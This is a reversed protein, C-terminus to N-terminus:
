QGSRVARVYFSDGITGYGCAGEDFVVSWAVDASMKNATWIWRQNRGFVPDIYLDANKKESEMLSMAEELTPLRWNAFEAFKVRNLSDVYALAHSYTLSDDSGFRQWYLKTADDYVILSGKQLEFKNDIGQENPNLLSDYYGLEQLRQIVEDPSYKLRKNKEFINLIAWAGFGALILFAAALAYVRMRNHHRRKQSSTLLKQELDSLQRMGNKGKEVVALEAKNLRVGETDIKFDTLKNSLVRGARQGPKDSNHYASRVVPALLDHALRSYLKQNQQIKTLLYLTQCQASLADLIDQHHSYNQRLEEMACTGATGLATTHAHLLDLVLGSEVVDPQWQRLQEMQQQLFDDMAIGEKQL